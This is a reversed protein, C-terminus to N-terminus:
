EKTKLYEDVYEDPNQIDNHNRAWIEYAILEKRLKEKHSLEAYEEMAELILAYQLPSLNKKTILNDLIEEKSKVTKM